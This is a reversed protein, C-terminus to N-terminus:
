GRIGVDKIVKGLTSMEEKVRTGLQEPSSAVVELGASAFRKKSEPLNLVRVVEQNLRNVLAPPTGAPAFLGFPAVLEYGPVGSAAITPLEPFLASPQASTVALARLKGVNVHAKTSAASGFTLQMRGALLDTIAAGPSKYNIWVINVKAMAKFLEGALHSASGSGATGFNLDGPRAKALAILDKVSRVPLAPHVALINTSTVALSVPSFDKQPDYQVRDLLFPLLWLASGTLLLTYGDPAAKSVVEGPIVGSPRNEVTVQQGLRGSLGQAIVRATFDTGGGTGSCVLRIPKNPYDQGVALSSNLVLAGAVAIVSSHTVRM